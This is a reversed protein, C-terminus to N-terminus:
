SRGFGEMHQENRSLDPPLGGATGILGLRRAKQFPTEPGHEDPEGAQNPPAIHGEEIGRLFMANVAEDPSRFRGEAVLQQVIKEVSESLRIEM